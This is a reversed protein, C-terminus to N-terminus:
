IIKIGFWVWDKIYDLLLLDNNSVHGVLNANNGKLAFTSDTIIWL